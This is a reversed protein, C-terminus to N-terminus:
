GFNMRCPGSRLGLGSTKDGANLAVSCPCPRDYEASNVYDDIVDSLTMGKRLSAWYTAGSDEDICDRVVAIPGTPRADREQHWELKTITMTAGEM